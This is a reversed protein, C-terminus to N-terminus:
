SREVEMNTSSWARRRHRRSRVRASSALSDILKYYKSKERDWNHRSNFGSAGAVLAERKAPEDYLEVIKAALDEPDGPACLCIMTGDFYARITDTQSAIVPVGVAVYELLKVPLMFRTFPDDLIPVIGVGAQEIVPLLQEIPFFQQELVVNDQVGLEDVLRRVREFYDGDGIIRLELDEVDERALAVAHVAIDLGHRSGVTGHYLLTFKRSRPPRKRGAGFLRPDPLNMLTVFKDKPNGHRILAELHPRHVSVGRDAFAVSLKEIKKVLRVIWHSEPLKFKSAYLEPMLDHVDLVVKAGLLKPGIASFVLFDPMTHVHIVDYNRRLHLRFAVIASAALFALYQKMYDLPRADASYSFSAVPYIRVGALSGPLGLGPSRPCVVDVEDGREVLSEAERRVRTDAPYITFAVMCVRAM